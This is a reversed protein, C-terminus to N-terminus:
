RAGKKELIESLLSFLIDMNLPRGPIFDVGMREWVKQGQNQKDANVIVVALDPWRKKTRRVIEVTEDRSTDYNVILLDYIDKKLERAAEKGGSVVTVQGGKDVFSLRLLDVIMNESSILLASQDKIRNRKVRVKSAMGKEALPLKIAVTTGQGDRSIVNIKGGHRAVVAYAVSLGLGKYSNSKSTVFPEYISDAVDASVGAGNDQVYVFTFGSDEESTVYIEGDPGVAEMANQIICVFAEKMEGECALVPSVTRLYKKIGFGGDKQDAHSLVRSRSVVEANEIVEQLDIAGMESPHYEERAILRFERGMPLFMKQLNEIREPRKLDERGIKSKKFSGTLKEFLLMLAEMQKGFGNIMRKITEIKLSVSVQRERKKIQKIGVMNLLFIKKRNRRIARMGVVCPLREGSRKVFTVEHPDDNRNGASIKGSFKGLFAGSDPYILDAMNMELLDQKEYGLAECAAENALVIRRKEVLIIGGPLEEILQRTNRLDREISAAETKLVGVREKLTRNERTLRHGWTMPKKDQKNGM